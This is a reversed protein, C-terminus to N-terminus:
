AIRSRDPAHSNAEHDSATEHVIEFPLFPVDIGGGFLDSHLDMAKDVDRQEEPSRVAAPSRVTFPPRPESAIDVLGVPSGGDPVSPVISQANGLLGGCTQVNGGDDPLVGKGRVDSQVAM